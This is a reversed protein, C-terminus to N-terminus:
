EARKGESDRKSHFFEGASMYKKTCSLAESFTSLTKKGSSFALHEDMVDSMFALLSVADTLGEVQLKEENFWAVYDKLSETSRQDITLLYLSLGKSPSSNSEAVDRPADELSSAGEQIPSPSEEDDLHPSHIPTRM